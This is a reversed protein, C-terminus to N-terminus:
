TTWRYGDTAAGSRGPFPLGDRGVDIAGAAAADRVLAYKVQAARLDRYWTVLEGWPDNVKALAALFAVVTGMETQGTVVLYGGLALIAAIGGHAMLNMLLNMAYKLWYISMNTRYISMINRYQSGDTDRASGADVIGTSIARFLMIRSAIRRNIREQMLPVFMMQSIFVGAIVLAMVPQLYLLYVAVIVLVGAQLVPESISEGVFGGVPEAEDLVISLQIGETEPSIPEDGRCRAAAFVAERLWRVSFEGIWNRYMNLALKLLGETVIVALYAAVLALIPQFAGGGVTDNVIRRQLEIPVIDIALVLGSILILALQHWGSVRWVFRLLSNPM